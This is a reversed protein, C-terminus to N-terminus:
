SMCKFECINNYQKAMEQMRCGGFVVRDEVRILNRFLFHSVVSASLLSAFFALPAGFFFIFLVAVASFTLDLRFWCAVAAELAGAFFCTSAGAAFFGTSAASTGATAGIELAAGLFCTLVAAAEGTLGAEKASFTL